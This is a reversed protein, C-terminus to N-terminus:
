SVSVPECTYNLAGRDGVPTQNMLDIVRRDFKQCALVKINLRQLSLFYCYYLNFISKFLYISRHLTNICVIIILSFLIYM